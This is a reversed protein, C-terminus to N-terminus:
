TREIQAPRFRLSVKPLSAIYAALENMHSAIGYTMDVHRVSSGSETLVLYRGEACLDFWKGEPKWRDAFGRETIKIICGGLDLTEKMIEREVPHIFPSVLVYGAKVRNACEEKYADKESQIWRRRVHVPYLPRRLLFLNGVSSFVKEGAMISIHHLFLDPYLKKILYRRPNDAIYKKLTSLHDKGYLIRDNICGAEFVSQEPGILESKRCVSSIAGEMIGIIKTIPQNLRKKVRLMLHVHDPMIVYPYVDIHDSRMKGTKLIEKSIIRGIDSCVTHPADPGSVSKPNGEIHSFNPVAGAKLLTFMYISPACYDHFCARRTQRPKLPSRFSQLRSTHKTKEM